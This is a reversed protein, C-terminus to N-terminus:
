RMTPAAAAVHTLMTPLAPMPVAVVILAGTEAARLLTADLDDSADFGDAQAGQVGEISRNYGFAPRGANTAARLM